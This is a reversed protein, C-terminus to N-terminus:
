HGRACLPGVASATPPCLSAAAARGEGDMQTAAAARGALAAPVESSPQFEHLSSRSDAASLLCGAQALWVTYRRRRRYEMATLAATCLPTTCPCFCASFITGEPGLQQLNVRFCNKITFHLKKPQQRQWYLWSALLLLPM